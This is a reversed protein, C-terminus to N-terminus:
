DNCYSKRLSEGLTVDISMAQTADEEVLMPQLQFVYTVQPILGVAEYREETTNVVTLINPFLVPFYKLCFYSINQSEGDMDWTLMVSTIGPIAEFSDIQSLKDSFFSAYIFPLSLLLNSVYM